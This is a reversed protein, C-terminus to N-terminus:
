RIQKRREDSDCFGCKDWSWEYRTFRTVLGKRVPNELIYRISDLPDEWPRLIHDFFSAQWVAGKHGMESIFLSIKGKVIGIFKDVSVGGGPELALHIHNPMICICHLDVSSDGASELITKLATSAFANNDFINKRNATCVTLFYIRQESYDHGRLRPSRREPLNRRNM